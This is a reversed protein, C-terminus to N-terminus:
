CQNSSLPPKYENKAADATAEWQFVSSWDM